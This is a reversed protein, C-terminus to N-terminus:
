DGTTETQSGSPKEDPYSEPLKAEEIDKNMDYDFLTLQAGWVNNDNYSRTTRDHLLVEGRTGRLWQQLARRAHEPQLQYLPGWISSFDGQKNRCRAGLNARVDRGQPDTIHEARLYKTLEQKCRKVISRPAERYLGTDVMWQAVEDTDYETVGHEKMYKRAAGQFYEPKTQKIRNRRRVAMTSKRSKSLAPPWKWAGDM